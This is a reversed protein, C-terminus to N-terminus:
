VERTIDRRSENILGILFAVTPAASCNVNFFMSERKASIKEKYLHNKSLMEEVTEVINDLNQIGVVEGVHNRMSKEFTDMMCSTDFNSFDKEPTDIFLVPRKLAAAYEFSVGSWDGILLDAECLADLGTWSDYHFYDNNSFKRLIGEIENKNHIENGPHPRFIVNYGRKILLRILEFSVTNVINIEGWSPAILITLGKLKKKYNKSYNFISDIRTYGAPFVIRENQRKLRDLMLIEEVHHPGSALFHTYSDFANFPFIKFCSIPSHFAHVRKKFGLVQQIPLNSAHSVLVNGRAFRMMRGSIFHVKYRDAKVYDQASSLIIFPLGQRKYELIIEELFNMGTYTLLFFVTPEVNSSSKSFYFLFLSKISVFFSKVKCMQCWYTLGRNKLFKGRLM